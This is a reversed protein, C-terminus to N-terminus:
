TKDIGVYDVLSPPAPTLKPHTYTHTHSLPHHRRTSGPSRFTIWPSFRSPHPLDLSTSSSCRISCMRTHVLILHTRCAQLIQRVASGVGSGVGSRIRCSYEVLIQYLIRIWSIWHSTCICQHLNRRSALPHPHLLFGLFCLPPLAPIVLLSLRVVLVVSRCVEQTRAQVLCCVAGPSSGSLM